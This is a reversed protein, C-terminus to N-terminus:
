TPSRSTDKQGRGAEANMALPMDLLSLLYWADKRWQTVAIIGNSLPFRRPQGDVLGLVRFVVRAIVGGHTVVLVDEGPHRASIERMAGEIREWLVDNSEIEPFGTWDALDGNQELGLSTRAAHIEASTAGEYKGFSRERLRETQEVPLSIGAGELILAATQSARPLDSSWVGGFKRGALLKGLALSQRRGEENLETPIHGQIRGAVNWDTQGHRVMWLRAAEVEMYDGRTPALNYRSRVGIDSEAFDKM